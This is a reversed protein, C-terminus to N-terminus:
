IETLGLLQALENISRKQAETARVLDAALTDCMKEASRIMDEFGPTLRNASVLASSFLRFDECLALCTQLAAEDARAEQCARAMDRLDRARESQETKM